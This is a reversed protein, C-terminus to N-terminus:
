RAVFLDALNAALSATFANSFTPVDAGVVDGIWRVDSLRPDVMVLHLVPRAAGSPTRDFRLEIPILVLRGEHLAIMTRLQTALPETLRQAVQLKPAKLMQISLSHPDAAYTPNNKSSAVLAEAYVWEQNRVRERLTDTLARDVAALIDATKPLTTWGLEPAIKITQVPTILLPQGAIAGLRQVAPNTASAEPAAHHCATAMTVAAVVLCAGTSRNWPIARM